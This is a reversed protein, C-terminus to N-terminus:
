PLKFIRPVYEVAVIDGNEKAKPNNDPRFTIVSPVPEPKIGCGIQIGSIENTFLNLKVDQLSAARLRLTQTDTKIYFTLKDKVCEIKELIGIVRKEDAQPKRLNDGIHKLMAARRQEDSEAQTEGGAPFGAEEVFGFSEEKGRVENILADNKAM